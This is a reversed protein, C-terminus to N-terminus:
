VIVPIIYKEFRDSPVYVNQESCLTYKSVTIIVNETKSEDYSVPYMQTIEFASELIKFSPSNQLYPLDSMCSMYDCFDPMRNIFPTYALYDDNVGIYKGFVKYVVDITAMIIPIFAWSICDNAKELMNYHRLFEPTVYNSMEYSISICGKSVENGDDDTIERNFNIVKCNLDNNKFIDEINAKLIKEKMARPLFELLDFNVLFCDKNM